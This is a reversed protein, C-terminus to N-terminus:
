AEGLIRLSQEVAVRNWGRVDRLLYHGVPGRDVYTASAAVEDARRLFARTAKPSTIRDRSGHAGVVHRGALQEVPDDAPFWPALGVVGVVAPSDAVWAATRAGMSHGLLVVPTGAHDAALQELAWRADGVPAPDRDPAHNWGVISFRLLATRVGQRRLPGTVNRFLWRARWLQKNRDDVVDPNQEAGGHLVLVLARTRDPEPGLTLRHEM